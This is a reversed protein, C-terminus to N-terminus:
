ERLPALGRSRGLTAQLTWPPRCAGVRLTMSHITGGTAVRELRWFVATVHSELLSPVREIFAPDAHRITAAVRLTTGSPAGQSEIRLTAQVTRNRPTVVQLEVQATDGEKRVIAWITAYAPAGTNPLAYIGEYEREDLRALRRCAPLLAEMVRPDLLNQWFVSPKLRLSYRGAHAM